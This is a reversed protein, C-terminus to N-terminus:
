VLGVDKDGLTQTEIESQDVKIGYWIAFIVCLLGVLDTFKVREGLVPVALISTSVPVVAAFLGATSVPVGKLGKGWFIFFSSSCIGGSIILLIHFYSIRLDYSHLDYIVWPMFLLAALFTFCSAVRYACHRKNMAKSLISFLAEPILASMVLADGFFTGRELSDGNFNDLSLILIGMVSLSICIVKNISISERLLIFAMIAMVGPLCSSIISASVATTQQLGSYFLFNFLVGGTLALGLIMSYDIKAFPRTSFETRPMIFKFVSAAVLSTVFFRAMIMLSLPVENGVFKGILVNLSFGMQALILYMYSLSRKSM